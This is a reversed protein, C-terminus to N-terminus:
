LEEISKQQNLYEDQTTNKMMEVVENWRDFDVLKITTAAPNGEFLSIYCGVSFSDDHKLIHNVEEMSAFLTIHFGNLDFDVDLPNGVRRYLEEVAYFKVGKNNNIKLIQEYYFHLEYISHVMSIFLDKRGDNFQFGILFGIKEKKRNEDLLVNKTDLHTM